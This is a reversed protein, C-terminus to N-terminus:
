KLLPVVSAYMSAEKVDTDFLAELLPSGVASCRTLLESVKVYTSLTILTIFFAGSNILSTSLSLM